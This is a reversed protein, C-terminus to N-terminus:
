RQKIELQPYGSQGNLRGWHDFMRRGWQPFEVYIWQEEIVTVKGIGHTISIVEEGEKVELRPISTSPAYYGVRIKEEPYFAPLGPVNHQNRGIDKLYDRKQAENEFTQNLKAMRKQGAQVAAQYNPDRSPHDPHRSTEKVRINM